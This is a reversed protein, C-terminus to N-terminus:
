NFRKLGNLPVEHNQSAIDASGFAVESKEGFTPTLERRNELLAETALVEGLKVEDGLLERANSGGMEAVFFDASRSEADGTGHDVVTDAGGVQGPRNVGGDETFFEADRMDGEEVIETGPSVADFIERGDIEGDEIWTSRFRAAR